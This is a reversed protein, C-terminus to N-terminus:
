RWWKPKSIIEFGGGAGEGALMKVQNLPIGLKRAHDIEAAVGVSERVGELLLVVLADSAELMRLCVEQAAAFDTPLNPAEVAIAQGMSLPSLVCWGGEMFWAACQSALAAHAARKAPDPNSYSTALYLVAPHDGLAYTADALGMPEVFQAKDESIWTEPIDKRHYRDCAPCAWSVELSFSNGAGGGNFRRAIQCVAGDPPLTAGIQYKRDFQGVRLLKGEYDKKFKPPEVVRWDILCDPNCLPM